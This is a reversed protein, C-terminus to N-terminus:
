LKINTYKPGRPAIGKKSEESTLRIPNDLKEKESLIIEFKDSDEFPKINQVHGIWRIGRILNQRM